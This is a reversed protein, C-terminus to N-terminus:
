VYMSYELWTSSLVWGGVGNVTAMALFLLADVLARQPPVREREREVPHRGRAEALDM